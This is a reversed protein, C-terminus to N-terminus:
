KPKEDDCALIYIASVSGSLKVDLLQWLPPSFDFFVLQSDNQSLILSLCEPTTVLVEVVGDSYSLFAEDISSLPGIHNQPRAVAVDTLFDSGVLFGRLVQELYIALLPCSALIIGRFRQRSAPCKLLEVLAKVKNSVSIGVLSPAKIIVTSAFMLCHTLKKDSLVSCRHGQTALHDLVHSFYLESAWVGLEKLLLTGYGYIDITSFTSQFLKLSASIDQRLLYSEKGPDLSYVDCKPTSDYEPPFTYTKPFAHNPKIYENLVNGLSSACAEATIITAIREIRLICDRFALRLSKEYVFIIGGNDLILTLKCDLKKEELMDQTLIAATSNNTYFAQFAQISEAEQQSYYFHLNKSGKPHM